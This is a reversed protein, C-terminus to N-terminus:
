CMTPGAESVVCAQDEPNVRLADFFTHHWVKVRSGIDHMHGVGVDLGLRRWRRGIKRSATSLRPPMRRFVTLEATVPDSMRM